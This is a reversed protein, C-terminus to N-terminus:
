EDPRRKASSALSSSNGASAAIRLRQDVSSSIRRRRRNAALGPEGIPVHRCATPPSIASTKATAPVSSSNSGPSGSTTAPRKMSPRSTGPSKRNCCALQLRQCRKAKTTAGAPGGGVKGTTPRPAFARRVRVSASPRGWISCHGGTGGTHTASTSASSSARRLREARQRARRLQAPRLQVITGEAALM